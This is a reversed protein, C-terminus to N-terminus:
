AQGATGEEQQLALTVARKARNKTKDLRQKTLALRLTRAQGHKSSMHRVLHTHGLNCLASIQDIKMWKNDLVHRILATFQPHLLQGLKILGKESQHVETHMRNESATVWALNQATCNLKNGDLHAIVLNDGKPKAHFTRSVLSHLKVKKDYYTSYLHIVYYGHTDIYPIIFGADEQWVRGASSVKIFDPPIEDPLDRASLWKEYKTSPPSALHSVRM